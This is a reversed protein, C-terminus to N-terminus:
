RVGFKDAFHLFQQQKFDLMSPKRDRAWRMVDFTCLLLLSEIERMLGASPTLGYGDMFARVELGDVAHDRLLEIFDYHPVIQAHACGWDILTKRNGDLVVNGPKLDGHCLGFGFQKEAFEEFRVQLNERQTESLISFSELGKIAQLNSSVYDQWDGDFTGTKEDSLADGFGTVKVKHFRSATEGLWYWIGAQDAATAANVGGEFSQVNYNWGDKVGFSMAQPVAANATAAQAMCWNEKFFERDDRDANLRIVVKQLGNQAAFVKNCTGLGSIEVVSEVKELAEQAVLAAIKETDSEM